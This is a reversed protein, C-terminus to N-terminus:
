SRYSSQPLSALPNAQVGKLVGRNEKVKAETNNRTATSKVGIDSRASRESSNGKTNVELESVHLQPTIEM